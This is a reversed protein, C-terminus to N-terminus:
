VHHAEKQSEQKGHYYNTPGTTRLVERNKLPNKAKDAAIVYAGVIKGAQVENLHTAVEEASAAEEFLSSNAIDGSWSQEGEYFIADGSLLDNATILFRKEAERQKM